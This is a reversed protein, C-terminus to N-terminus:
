SYKYQLFNPILETLYPNKNIDKIDKCIGPALEICKDASLISVREYFNLLNIIIRNKIIGNKNTIKAM